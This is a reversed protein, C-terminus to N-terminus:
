QPDVWGFNGDPRKYVTNVRGHAANKFVVVPYESLELKMVADSVTMTDVNYGTEAITIPTDDHYDDDRREIVYNQASFKEIEQHRRRDRLRNKYKKVKTELREVAQAVSKYPDENSGNCNVVFSHTINAQIETIFNHGMKEVVVTSDVVTGEYKNFIANLSDNLFKTLSEGVDM